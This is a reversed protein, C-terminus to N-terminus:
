RISLVTLNPRPRSVRCLLVRREGGGMACVQRGLLRPHSSGLHPEYGPQHPLGLSEKDGGHKRESRWSWGLEEEPQLADACSRPPLASAPAPPHALWESPLPCPMRDFRGALGGVDIAAEDEGAPPSGGMLM